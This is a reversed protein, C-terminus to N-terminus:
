FTLLQFLIMAIVGYGIGFYAFLGILTLNITVIAHGGAFLPKRKFTKVTFIAIFAGVFNIVGVLITGIKPDLGQGKANM